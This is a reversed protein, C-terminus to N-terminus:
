AWIGACMCWHIYSAVKNHRHLYETPAMISCGSTIHSITEECKSCKRCKSNIDQKLIHRQYYRTALAQDQAAVILSETEGKLGSSQLWAHTAGQDVHPKRLNRFYQGHLPKGEVESVRQQQMKTKVSASCDTTGEICLQHKAAFAAKTLSYKKKEEEHRM